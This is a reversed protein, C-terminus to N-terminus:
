LKFEKFNIIHMFKSNINFFWIENKNFKWYKYSYLFILLLGQFAFILSLLYYINKYIFKFSFLFLIYILYVIIMEFSSIFKLLLNLNSRNSNNYDDSFWMNPFPAFLGIQTARPFYKIFESSNKFNINTDISTRSFLEINNFGERSRSIDYVLQDINNPLYWVKRGVM